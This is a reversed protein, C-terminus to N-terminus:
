AVSWVKLAKIKRLMPGTEEAAVPDLTVWKKSRPEQAQLYVHSYQRKGRFFANNFAATVIRVSRGLALLLAAELTVMDDCDTSPKKGAVIDQLLREPRRVLEITRPDNAYRTHSVVFHYVAQIESAYDKAYLGSVIEEATLRVIPQRQSELAYRKILDVTHPAGRFPGITDVRGHLARFQM